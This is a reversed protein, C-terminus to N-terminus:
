YDLSKLCDYRDNSDPHTRYHNDIEDFLVKVINETDEANQGKTSQQNGQISNQMKVLALPGELKENKPHKMDSMRDYSWRDAEFEQDESYGVKIFHDFIGVLNGGFDGTYQRTRIPIVVIKACHDLEIHGIEHGLIFKLAADNAGITDLLGTYVYVYGGLLAFANDVPEDIVTIRYTFEKKCYKKFPEMLDFLRKLIKKDLVIPKQEIISHHYLNGYHREEELSFGIKDYVVDDAVRTGSQFLQFAIPIQKTLSDIDLLTDFLGNSQKKQQKETPTEKPITPPAGLPTPTTRDSEVLSIPTPVSQAQIRAPSIQAKVQEPTPSLVIEKQPPHSNFIFKGAYQFILFIGIIALLWLIINKKNM